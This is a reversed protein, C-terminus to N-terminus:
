RFAEDTTPVRALEGALQRARTRYAPTTLVTDLAARLSAADPTTHVGAGAEAVRRANLHQDEAFLPAVVLPAGAALAGLTSGGGGHCMVAAAHGLVTNQDVWREVRVNPPPEGLTAPDLGHGVTLLVDADLGAVAALAEPYVPAADSLVGTVSGFTAYVFPRGAREGPSAWAADRFRRTRPPDPVTPDELGAPFLTLYPSEHLRTADPDPPLGSARRLGDVSEAAYRVFREEMVGLGIAIRAHPVDHLEAAVAAAFEASERVVVDPGWDAITEALRPLAARPRLRGFIEGCMFANAEDHPLTALIEYAAAVADAPPDDVRRFAAGTAEATSALADPGTVLVDHGTRLCSRVFPAMPGFHGAGATSSFLVRM